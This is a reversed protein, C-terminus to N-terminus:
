SVQPLNPTASTLSHFVLSLISSFSPAAGGPRLSNLTLYVSDFDLTGTLLAPRSLAPFILM